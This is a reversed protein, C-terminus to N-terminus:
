LLKQGDDRASFPTVVVFIGSVVATVKVVNYGM